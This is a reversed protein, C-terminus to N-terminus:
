FRSRSRSYSRFRHRCSNTTVNRCGDPDSVRQNGADRGGACREPSRYEIAESGFFLRVTGLSQSLADAPCAAHCAAARRQHATWSVRAAVLVLHGGAPLMGPDRTRLAGLFRGPDGGFKDCADLADVLEARWGDRQAKVLVRSLLGTTLGAVPRYLVSLYLENHMLTESRLKQQYRTHLEGAFWCGSRGPRSASSGPAAGIPAHRRILHMWLAVSPSAINRWLVNLREHWNNLEADDRSEFSAGGLRFAQLYDGFKTRVVGSAVHASYPIHEGAALERRLEAARRLVAVVWGSTETRGHCPKWCSQRDVRDHLGEHREGQSDAIRPWSSCRRERTPLTLSARRSQFSLIQRTRPSFARVKSGPAGPAIASRARAFQPVRISQADSTNM